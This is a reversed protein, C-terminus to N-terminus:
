KLFGGYSRGDITWMNALVQEVRRGDFGKPETRGKSWQECPTPWPWPLHSDAQPTELVRHIDLEPTPAQTSFDAGLQSPCKLWLWDYLEDLSAHLLIFNTCLTWIDWMKQIKGPSNPRPDWPHSGSPAGRPSGGPHHRWRSACSSRADIWTAIWTPISQIWPSKKWPSEALLISSIYSVTHLHQYVHLIYSPQISSAFRKQSHWSIPWNPTTKIWFHDTVILNLPM